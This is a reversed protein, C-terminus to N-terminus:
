PMERTRRECDAVFEMAFQRGHDTGGKRARAALGVIETVIAAAGDPNIIYSTNARQPSDKVDGELQLVMYVDDGAKSDVLLVTSSDLLVSGRSDFLTGGETHPDGVVDVIGEGSSIHAEHVRQSHEQFIARLRRVERVLDNKSWEKLGDSPKTM